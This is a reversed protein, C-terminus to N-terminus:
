MRYCPAHLGHVSVAMGARTEPQCRDSLTALQVAPSYTQVTDTLRTLPTQGGEEFQGGLDGTDTEQRRPRAMKTVTVTRTGM